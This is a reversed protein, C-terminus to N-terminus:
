GRRAVLEMARAMRDQMEAPELMQGDQMYMWTGGVSAINPLALYPAVHVAGIKGSPMFSVDPFVNAYDDLVSTGGAPESPYFKMVTVGRARAAMVESATQVGPVLRIPGSLAHDVVDPAFGPAICFDAGAAVAGDYHQRTLITGAALLLQPFQAKAAVLAPLAEANRVLIEIGRAGGAALAAIAALVWDVSPTVLIPLVGVQRVRADLEKYDM